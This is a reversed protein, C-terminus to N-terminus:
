SKYNYHGEEEDNDINKSSNEESSSCRQIRGPLTTMIPSKLIRTSMGPSLAARLNLSKVQFLM